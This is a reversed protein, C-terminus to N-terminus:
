QEVLEENQNHVQWGNVTIAVAFGTSEDGTFTLVIDYTHTTEFDHFRYASLILDILDGSQAGVPYLVTNATQNYIELQPTHRDAALQLINLSAHLQNAGDKICPATYTVTPHVYPIASCDFTYICCNDTINFTYANTDFPLGVTHINITNSLQKLPMDFRQVKASTVTALLDAHFLHHLPTSVVNEPHEFILRAEDFTTKGVVFSSPTTSYDKEDKGGWTIFRYRGPLLDSCEMYYDANFHPIYDDRYEGLYYGKHDFVYLHMRDVDASNITYSPFTFYVRIQEPCHSVDERLCSFLLLTCVFLITFNTKM